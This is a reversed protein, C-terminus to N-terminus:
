RYSKGCVTCTCGESKLKSNMWRKFKGLLKDQFAHECTCTRIVMM